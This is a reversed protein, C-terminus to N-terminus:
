TPLALLTVLGQATGLALHRADPSWAIVTIEGPYKRVALPRPKQSPDFLLLLGSHDGSALWDRGPAYALARIEDAHGEFNRPSTGEPGRAGTCNWITVVPGGGIALHQGSHHFSLSRVKGKYGQIHLPENRTFDYLHVSPTQDGTAIWRGDPSWTAILSAGRWDFRAFPESEEIRWMVAGGDGVLVLERPNAPNWAADCVMGKPGPLRRLNKGSRDFLVVERGCPAAVHQGDPSWRLFAAPQRGLPLRTAEGSRPHLLLLSGDAAPLLLDGLPSFAASGNQLVHGPWFKMPQEEGLSWLAYEGSGPSILLQRGDPSWSLAEVSDPAMWHGLPKFM